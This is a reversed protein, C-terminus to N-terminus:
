KLAGNVSGGVVCRQFLVFVLIAPLTFLMCAAMLAGWDVGQENFFAYIGLSLTYRSSDNLYLLPGLFDTWSWVFQFVAATILAPKALPLVVSWYVRFERA